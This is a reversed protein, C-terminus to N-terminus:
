RSGRGQRLRSPPKARAAVCRRLAEATLERRPAAASPRAQAPRQRVDAGFAKGPGGGKGFALLRSPGGPFVPLIKWVFAVARSHPPKQKSGKPKIFLKGWAARSRCGAAPTPTVFPIGATFAPQLAFSFAQSQFAIQTWAEESGPLVAAACFRPCSFDRGDCFHHDRSPLPPEGSTSGFPNSGEVERIRVSREGLQAIPGHFSDKEPCSRYKLM